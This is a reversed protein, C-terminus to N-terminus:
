SWQNLRLAISFVESFETRFFLGASIFDLLMMKPYTCQVYQTFYM